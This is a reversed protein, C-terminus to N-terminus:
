KSSGGNADVNAKTGQQVFFEHITILLGYTEPINWTGQIM